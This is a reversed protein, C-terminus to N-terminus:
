VRRPDTQDLPVPQHAVLVPDGFPLRQDPVGQGVATAQGRGLPGVGFGQQAVVQPVGQGPQAPGQDQVPQVDPGALDVQESQDQDALELLGGPLPDQM